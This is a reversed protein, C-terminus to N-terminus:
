LFCGHLLWTRLQLIHDNMDILDCEIVRRRLEGHNLSGFRQPVWLPEPDGVLSSCGRNEFRRQTVILRALFPDGAAMEIPRIEGRDPVRAFM